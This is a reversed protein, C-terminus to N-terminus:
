REGRDDNPPQALGTRRQWELLRLGGEVLFNVVESISWGGDKAMSKLLMFRSMVFRVGQTRTAERRPPSTAPLVPATLEAPLPPKTPPPTGLRM